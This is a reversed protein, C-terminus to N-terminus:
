LAFLQGLTIPKEFGASGKLYDRVFDTVRQIMIVNTTIFGIPISVSSVEPLSIHYCVVAYQGPLVIVEVAGGGLGEVYGYCDDISYIHQKWTQISHRDNADRVPLYFETKYLTKANKGNTKANARLESQATALLKSMGWFNDSPALWILSELSKQHSGTLKKNIALFIKSFRRWNEKSYIPGLFPQIAADELESKAVDITLSAIDIGHESIFKKIVDDGLDNMISIIDTLNNAKSKREVARAMKDIIPEDNRFQDLEDYALQRGHEDMFFKHEIRIPQEKVRRVADMKYISPPYKKDPDQIHRMHGDELLKYFNRQFQKNAFQESLGQHEADIALKIGAKWNENNNKSSVCNFGVLEFALTTDTQQLTSVRPTDGLTDFYSIALPSLKVSGDELYSVESKNLLDDVAARVERESLGLYGAIDRPQMPALHLIRLVFERIFSLGHQSVYSFSINFKHSLLLFDVEHFPIRNNEYM